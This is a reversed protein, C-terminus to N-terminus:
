MCNNKTKPIFARIEKNLRQPDKQYKEQMKKIQPQIKQMKQTSEYSKKTLPATLTYRVMFLM